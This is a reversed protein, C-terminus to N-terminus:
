SKKALSLADALGAYNEPVKGLAVRAEDRTMLGTGGIDKTMVCTERAFYMAVFGFNSNYSGVIKSAQSLILLDAFTDLKQAYTISECTHIPEPNAVHMGHDAAVKLAYRCDATVFLDTYPRALEVSKWFRDMTIIEHPRHVLVCDGFRLQIAAYDPHMRAQAKHVRDTLEPPLRHLGLVNQGVFDFVRTMLAPSFLVPDSLWVAHNCVMAIDEGRLAGELFAKMQETGLAFRAQPLPPARLVGPSPMFIPGDRGDFDGISDALFWPVDLLFAIAVSSIMGVMRDGFGGFDRYYFTISMDQSNLEM